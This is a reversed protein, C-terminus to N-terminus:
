KEALHFADLDARVIGRKNTRIYVDMETAGEPAVGEFSYEKWEPSDPDVESLIRHGGELLFQTGDQAFFRMFVCIGKNNQPARAEYSVKYTRGATVPFRKSQAVLVDQTASTDVIRLGHSDERAAEPTITASAVSEDPTTVKWGDLGSEFGPNVLSLDSRPSCAAALISFSLLVFHSIRM